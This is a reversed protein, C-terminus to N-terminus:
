ATEVDYSHSYVEIGLKEAVTKAKPEVMPSIVMMRDCTRKHRDEYFRVKREFAYVESKSISSKIECIIVHDNKIIIDMEVQDPKGFVFGQDDWENVNIVEVNFSEELIAKLGNRFSEESFIGWRAGLAGISNEHKKENRDIRRNMQKLEELMNNLIKQNEEWKKNQEEWKKIQTERDRRLEELLLNFHSETEKKDAFQQSALDLILRRIDEDTEVINPLENLMIKKIEEILM